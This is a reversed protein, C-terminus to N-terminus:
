VKKLVLVHSHGTFWSFSIDILKRVIVAVKNKSDYIKQLFPKFLTIEDKLGKMGGLSISSEVKFGKAEMQQVVQSPDLAFQYFGDNLSGQTDKQPYYHLYAKLKRLLSMQPFTVFFYGNHKIIRHAESIIDEYGNWFHEIVGFSWYGDISEDALGTERVDGQVPNVEPITDHLYDITKDAYDLAITHYGLQSLYWSTMALGCGGELVTAGVPLYKKTLIVSTNLRPIKQTYRITAILKEWHADWFESTAEESYYILRNNEKDYVKM